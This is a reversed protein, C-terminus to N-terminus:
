QHFPVAHMFFFVNEPQRETMCGNDELTLSKWKAVVDEIERHMDALQSPSLRLVSDSSFAAKLWEASWGETKEYFEHLKEIQNDITAQGLLRAASQAEPQGDFDSMSFTFGRGTSKWWRKRLDGDRNTVEDVFGQESLQRLHYSVLAPSVKLIEALRSATTEGESILAYFLKVRLPHAMAKLQELDALQRAEVKDM